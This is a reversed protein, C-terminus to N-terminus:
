LNILWNDLNKAIIKMFSFFFIVYFRNKTWLQYIFDRCWHYTEDFLLFYLLNILKSYIQYMQDIWFYIMDHEELAIQIVSAPINILRELGNLGWKRSKETSVVVKKYSCIYKYELFVAVLFGVQKELNWSISWILESLLFLPFYNIFWNYTLIIHNFIDPIMCYILRNKHATKGTLEIRVKKQFV